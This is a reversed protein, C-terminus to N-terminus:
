EWDVRGIASHRSFDSTVAAPNGEVDDVSGFEGDLDLM